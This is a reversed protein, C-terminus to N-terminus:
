WSGKVGLVKNGIITWVHEFRRESLEFLSKEILLIVMFLKCHIAKYFM